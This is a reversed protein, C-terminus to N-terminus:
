SYVCLGNMGGAYITGTIQISIGTFIRNLLSGMHAGRGGGRAKACRITEILVYM